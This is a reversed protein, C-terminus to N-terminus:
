GGRSRADPSNAKNARLKACNVQWNTIKAYPNNTVIGNPLEFKVLGRAKQLDRLEDM